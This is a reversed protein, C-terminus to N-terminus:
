FCFFLFLIFYHLQYLIINESHFPISNFQVFMDRNQLFSYFSLLPYPLTIQEYGQGVQKYGSRTSNEIGDYKSKDAIWNQLVEGSIDLSISLSRPSSLSYSLSLSFLFSLPFLFSLFSHLFLFLSLSPSLFLILFRPPPPPSPSTLFLSQTLINTQYDSQM